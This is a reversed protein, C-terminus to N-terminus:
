EGAEKREELKQKEGQDNEIGDENHPVKDGRTGEVGEHAASWDDRLREVTM